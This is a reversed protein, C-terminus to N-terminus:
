TNRSPNFCLGLPRDARYIHRSVHGPSNTASSAQLQPYKQVLTAIEVIIWAVDCAVVGCRAIQGYLAHCAGFAGDDSIVM